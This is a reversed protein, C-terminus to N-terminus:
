KAGKEFFESHLGRVASEMDEQQVIISLNVESAGMNVMLVNIDGIATFCRAAIGSTFKLGEGVLSIIAVNKSVEVDSFTSLDKIIKDLSSDKEITVSINIESTTILDVPTQHNTFVDFVKSLFGYTGLMKESCINIVTVDKQFAVAKVENQTGSEKRIATGLFKPDSTRRIYVPVEAMIAPRITKPHLVKAGFYALESAEAYSLSDIRKASKIIRPDTTMIGDVEKWIELKKADLCVSAVSATYDSGGRGLTTISDHRDSGTFGACVVCDNALFLPSVLEQMKSRTKEIDIVAGNHASDTKIVRTSSVFSARIGKLNLYDTLVFSSLEEGYSLIRDISRPSTEGLLSLAPILRRLEEIKESVFNSSNVCELDLVINQSIKEIKNINELAKKAQNSKLSKVIDVLLDTVGYFASVVIFTKAENSSIIGAVKKIAAADRLSIGGFKMVIM